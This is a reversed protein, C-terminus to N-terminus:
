YKWVPIDVYSDNYWKIKLPVKADTISEESVDKGTGYNIQAFPNKNIDLMVLLRSGKSLHRSFMRTSSFPISSIEGEKLLNRHTMDKAYSARGLFYSLHFYTGDPLLEYLVLGVDMDKKNISAKLLGSFIGDVSVEEEFPDSIFYLGTSRDLEKRVIPYPYYDNNTGKRDAFDVEQSLFGKSKMKQKSLVQNEGSKQGTLYLRLVQNNMKDIAPAHKWKNAGMVEYNIKDKLLAPKPGGKLVYDMWEYTIQRTNILAVPDVKYDRLEPFGGKQAGFHDYPGIILYHNANKNYKYHEKFYRLASIQGDDYYGTVSLVPINIKAFDEQWPVMNQWYEDYSPHQLWRQLLPNQRGEISDIKRYAVGSHYWNFQMDNWHKRDYYGTEDLYKNNGVYFGWGYNANLFVNNEMPLGFGPIAAVYPVITKLAPHLQKTAAWAAFGSYSGGYIAVRGDTWPHKSIWDVAGNVDTSEKEYPNIVDPSLAKGRSNVVVGIYGHDASRKAEALNDDHDAYITFFLAAPATSNLGKKRVVMASLSIAEKTKILVSDQIDYAQVGADPTKGPALAKPEQGFAYACLGM